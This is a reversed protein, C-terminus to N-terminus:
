RTGICYLKKNTRIFLQGNAVSITSRIEDEGEDAMPISALLQGRDADIVAVEGAFNMTYIKGDAGTPSAEYKKRGPLDLKWKVNGNASDVRTLIRKDSNLVFFDGKYFLPTSVDTSVDRQESSNWAIASDPLTGNGGLKVAFVPSGKPGCALAVGAGAVPSPVLRWSGIRQPNWTGWRWFERGSKPDHGSIMDGGTILIETRGEHTHPIPTSFAELSEARAESPRVHRWLTKGSAPDIGLLFSEGGQKGKGHVPEDRQLVQLYLTGNHLMPSSSFTWQFAFDGYDKQIDRKWLEKGSHDFALLTGNGYFFFVRNKDAVPSPSSYNSRPDRRAGDGTKKDWLIKGSPRDICIAHLTQNQADITSTFVRDGLIVPTSASPGPMDLAWRASQKSWQSPLGSEPSSGNFEPGRWQAWDAAFVSTFALVSFVLAARKM